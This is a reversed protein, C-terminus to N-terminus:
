ARIATPLARPWCASSLRVASAPEGRDGFRESLGDLLREQAPSGHRKSAVVTFAEEPELRVSVPQARGDARAGPVSVAGGYAAAASAPVGVSGFLLGAM